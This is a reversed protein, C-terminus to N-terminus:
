WSVSEEGVAGEATSAISEETAAHARPRSVVEGEASDACTDAVEDLAEALPAGSIRRAPEAVDLALERKHRYKLWEKVGKLVQGDRTHILYLFRM